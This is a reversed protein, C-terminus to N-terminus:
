KSGGARAIVEDLASLARVDLSRRWQEPIAQLAQRALTAAELLSPAAEMLRADEPTPRTWFQAVVLGMSGNWAGHITDGNTLWPGPTHKSM